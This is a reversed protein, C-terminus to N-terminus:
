KKASDPIVIFFTTGSKGSEFWIKGKLLGVYEHAIYLGLGAGIDKSARNAGRFFKNFVQAKDEDSIPKGQNAIEFLIGGNEPKQKITVTGATASYLMANHLIEYLIRGLLTVDTNLTLDEPIQEIKLSPRPSIPQREVNKITEQILKGLRVKKCQPLIIKQDIASVDILSQALKNTSQLSREATRINEQAEQLTKSDAAADLLALAESIPTRIQHQAYAFDSKLRQSEQEATADRFIVIAGDVKGYHDFIPAASDAVSVEQGDKTVIVNQGTLFAAKGRVMADEIFVINESRDSEKLLKIIKRFPKGIAEDKSWGTLKEATPNWLTINWGRDIAIVGDGISNLYTESLKRLREVETKSQVTNELVIRTLILGVIAIAVILINQPDLYAGQWGARYLLISLTLIFSLAIAGKWRCVLGAIIPPLLPIYSPYHTVYPEPLSVGILLAVIVVLLEASYRWHRLHAVFTAGLLVIALVLPVQNTVPQAPIIFQSAAVLLAIIIMFVFLVSAARYQDLRNVSMLAKIREAVNM